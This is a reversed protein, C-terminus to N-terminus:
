VHQTAHHVYSRFACAVRVLEEFQPSTLTSLEHEQCIYLEYFVHQGRELEERLAHVQEFRTVM